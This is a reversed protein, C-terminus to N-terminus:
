ADLESFDIGGKMVIKRLLCYSMFIIKIIQNNESFMEPHIVLSKRYPRLSIRERVEILDHGGFIRLM